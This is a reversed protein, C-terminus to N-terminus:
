ATVVKNKTLQCGGFCVAKKVEQNCGAAGFLRFLTVIFDGRWLSRCM